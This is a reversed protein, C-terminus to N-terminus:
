QRIGRPQRDSGNANGRTPPATLTKLDLPFIVSQVGSSSVTVTVPTITNRGLGAGQLTLEYTGAVLQDLQFRGSADVPANRGGRDRVSASADVRRASVSLRLQPPLVGGTVQVMGRISSNGYTAILRVGAVQEGAEVRLGAQLDAGDREIRLITLGPTARDVLTLTVLGPVLGSLRFIGDPGLQAAADNSLGGGGGGRGSSRSSARVLLNPLNAQVKSENANEFAVVGTISAGRLLKIEVGTVDSSSIEVPVPDSYFESAGTARDRTAYVTFSGATLGAIRFEGAENSPADTLEEVVVQQNARNGQQTPQNPQNPGNQNNPNPRNARPNAMKSHGLLVGALPNGTEADVVRGVIAYTNRAAMRIDIGTLEQGPEVSVASATAAELADPYYTRQWANGSNSGGGNPGGRGGGGGFGGEGRGVSLLYRGAPLGFLRYIGRDDTRFSIGNPLRMQVSQGTADVPTLTVPEGIVPRTGHLVKGTIVGGKALSLNLNQVAQGDALQMTMESNALVYGPATVLVRFTGAALNNIQFRGETDTTAAGGATPQAALGGAFPQNRKARAVQNAAVNTLSVLAGAIGKEGMKIQGALSATGTPSATAPTAPPTQALLTAPLSLMVALWCLHKKKRPM